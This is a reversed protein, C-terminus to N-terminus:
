RPIKDALGDVIVWIIKKRCYFAAGEAHRKGVLAAGATRFLMLTQYIIVTISATFSVCTTHVGFDSMWRINSPCLLTLLLICYDQYQM